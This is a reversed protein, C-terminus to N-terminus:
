PIMAPVEASNASETGTGDIARVVYFYTLGSQVTSDTYADAAVPASDLISYPGGTTIGRYVNYGVVGTSTSATWTLDVSHTSAQIGTGSVAITPSNTANSAVTVNGGMLGAVTPAFMINLTATQNPTLMTGAVGSANFGAPATASTITVTSNGTNTLTVNLSSSSGDNVSNFNLSPPNASLLHTAAQGTGSLAISLPSNPANSMVSVSGTVSGTTTPTFVANFTASGGANITMPLAPMGSISFGTGTANAQSISVAATGGNTLSITQSNSNGMVVTGLSASSPNAGLQSQVGTGSLAITAPSGPADSSISISGNVSGTSAPSFKAAFTVSAGANITQAGLGTVSFGTGSATASTINLPGSGANTLTVNQSSNSSVAVNGFAVSAPSITLQPQSETGIGSLPITLPSGPADSTISVNGSAPGAVTPAFKVTFLTSQGATLTTPVLGNMSYGTGSASGGSIAVSGTGTNTLTISVSANSNVLLSGFNVSAPNASLHAQTGSGSLAITLTPNTADSTVTIMGSANGTATPAFKATFSTTQGANLTLPIFGTISFGTGSATAQSIAISTAGTNTLTISQTSNSGVAVGGFAFSGPSASLTANAATGTGTLDLNEPSSPSNDTFKIRGTMGQASPPTFTVSFAMSQGASLTAPLALGSMGFGTGSIQALNLVLDVNGSNTLKVSQTSSQGVKVNGFNLTQPSMALASEMGTGTLSISAPSNSADSVISFTGNDVGASLPALQIQVTASQGVAISNAPNGGIVTYGAGTLTAQSINVTATGTNTLTVSQTKSNGVSVNGFSISTASASLIGTSSGPNGGGTGASTFGACSSLVITALTIAFATIFAFLRRTSTSSTPYEGHGNSAPAFNKPNRTPVHIRM